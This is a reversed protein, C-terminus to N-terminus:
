DVGGVKVSSSYTLLIANSAKNPQLNQVTKVRRAGSTTNCRQATRNRYQLRSNPPSQQTEILWPRHSLRSHICLRLFGSSFLSSPLGARLHPTIHFRTKFLTHAPNMQRLILHTTLPASKHTRYHSKHEMFSPSNRSQAVVM